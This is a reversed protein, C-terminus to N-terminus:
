DVYKKLEYAYNTGGIVVSFKVVVWGTNGVTFNCYIKHGSVSCIVTEEIGTVTATASSILFDSNSYAEIAIVTDSGNELIPDNIKRFEVILNDDLSISELDVNLTINANITQSIEQNWVGDKNFGIYYNGSDLYFIVEGNSDSVASNIAVRNSDYIFVNINETVIGDVSCIITIIFEGIGDSNEATLTRMNYSWIDEVDHSSRSSILADLNDLNTARSDTLRTDLNDISTMRDITVKDNLIDVNNDITNTTTNITNITNNIDTITGNDPATYSSAPFRSSITEDLYDLNSLRSVTRFSVGGEIKYNTESCRVLYIDEFPPTFDIVYTGGFLFSMINNILTDQFLGTSGNYYKNDSRRYIVCTPSIGSNVPLGSNDTILFPILIPKGVEFIM